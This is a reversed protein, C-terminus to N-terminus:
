LEEDKWEVDSRDSLDVSGEGLDLLVEAPEIDDHVVSPVAHHRLYLPSRFVFGSRAELRAKPAHDM